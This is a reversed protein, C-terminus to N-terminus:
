IGALRVVLDIEGPLWMRRKREDDTLRFHFGIPLDTGPAGPPGEM